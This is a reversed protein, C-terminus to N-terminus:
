SCGPFRGEAFLDRLASLANFRSDLDVVERVASERCVFRADAFLDAADREADAFCPALFLAADYHNLAVKEAIRFFPSGSPEGNEITELSDRVCTQSVSL